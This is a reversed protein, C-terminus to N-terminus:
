LMINKKESINEFYRQSLPLSHYPEGMQLNQQEMGDKKKDKETGADPM